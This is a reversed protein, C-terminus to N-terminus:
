APLSYLTPLPCWPCASRIVYRRRYTGDIGKPRRWSAQLHMLAVFVSPLPPPLSLSCGTLFEAFNARRRYPAAISEVRAALRAALSAVTAAPVATAGCCSFSACGFLGARAAELPSLTRLPQAHHPPQGARGYDWSVDVKRIRDSQPRKFIKTRKKVIKPKHTPTVM